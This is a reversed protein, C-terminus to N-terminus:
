AAEENYARKFSRRGRALLSEVAETSKGLLRAAEPVSYGDLYCLVLAARQSAAVAGLAAVAREHTEARDAVVPEESAEELESAPQLQGSARQERRYHDLLKHRAIGYVWATPTRVRKGRKLEVIVALFTEQTLDEAVAASGGCRHVFYGYVRPLAQDYFAAFSGPSTDLAREAEPASIDMLIFLVNGGGM